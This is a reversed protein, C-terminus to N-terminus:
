YQVVPDGCYIKEMSDNKINKVVSVNYCKVIIRLTQIVLSIECIEEKLNESSM